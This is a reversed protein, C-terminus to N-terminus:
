SVAQGVLKLNPNLYLKDLKGIAEAKHQPTSDTYIDLTMKVSSHGLIRSLTTVDMGTEMCRTAFTHRLSHFSIHELGTQKLIQEFHYRIMRPETYHGRISIVYDGQSQKQEEELIKKLGATLPIKRESYLSKPSGFLLRTKRADDTLSPIRQLTQHVQIVGAELDVDQWRLACIEGIRMGTYLALMVSLGRRSKGAERELQQQSTRELTKVRPAEKKPLVVGKCPNVLLVQKAAADDFIRNLVGAIGRITGPKLGKKTLDDIFRQTCATTITELKQKGFAPLIHRRIIGHYFSYTSQKVLLCVTQELWGRVWVDFTGHFELQRGDSLSYQLKLPLLREKVLHYKPAYIYGYHPKGDEKRGKIYRGEWRGDKRKYINEGKRIM